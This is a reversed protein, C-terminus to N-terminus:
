AGMSPAARVEHAPAPRYDKPRRVRIAIGNIVGGDLAMSIDADTPTHFEVFAYMGQPNLSVQM